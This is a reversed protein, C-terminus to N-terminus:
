ALKVINTYICKHKSDINYNWHLHGFYWCKYKTNNKIFTFFRNLSDVEAFPIIELLSDTDCNHSIIYDVEYNYKELNLIGYDMEEKSPMEEEFWEGLQMKELMDVSKAGGFTFFTKGEINFIEGRKLHFINERIQHVKGGNWEIEKYSHNLVDFGEHNGDVFLIKYGLNNLIDLIENEEKTNFYVYGFDGTIILYKIDKLKKAELFRELNSNGHTDGTIYIM